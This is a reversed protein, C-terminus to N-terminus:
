KRHFVLGNLDHTYKDIIHKCQINKFPSVNFSYIFTSVFYSTMLPSQSIDSISDPSYHKDRSVKVRVSELLQSSEIGVNVSWAKEKPTQAAQCPQLSQADRMDHHSCFIAHLPM